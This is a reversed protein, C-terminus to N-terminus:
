GLSPCHEGGGANLCFRLFFPKWFMFPIIYRDFAIYSLILIPSYVLPLTSFILTLSRNSVQIKCIKNKQVQTKM